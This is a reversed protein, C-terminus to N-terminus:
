ADGKNQKVDKRRSIHYERIKQLTKIGEIQGKVRLFASGLIKPDKDDLSVLKKMWDLILKNELAVLGKFLHTHSLEYLADGMEDDDMSM